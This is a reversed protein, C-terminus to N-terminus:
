HVVIPIRPDLLYGREGSLLLGRLGLKRLTTLAVHVRNVAAEHGVQEGPWGAALLEDLALGDGPAGVRREALALMLRRLPQRRVLDIDRDANPLRFAAADRRIVLATTATLGTSAELLRLAFRPDDGDAGARLARAEAAVDRSPDALQLRHIGLTALLAPESQCATADRTARDFAAEASIRDGARAYGAGRASAILVEYRAAGVEAAAAAAQALVAEGQALEGRELSATGLYYLASGERHRNGLDRFTQVAAAHLGVAEDLKGQEQLLIGLACTIAAEVQRAGQSRALALGDDLRARAEDLAGRMLAVAALEYSAAAIGEQQGAGRFLEIAQALERAAADLAGERRHAHGLHARAEAELIRAAPSRPSAVIRELAIEYHTRAAGTAGTIEVLEGLRVHASGELLPAGATIALEKCRELDARALDFAGLERQAAGRALLGRALEEPASADITALAGDLLRLRLRFMGRVALLPELALAITLALPTIAAHALATAHAVVLNELEAALRPLGHPAVLQTGHAAFYRAHRLALDVRDARMAFLEAAVERIPEYLQFRPEGGLEPHTTTRVLSRECLTELEALVSGRPGALVVEAAALSFGGRFVTCAAFCARAADDLSQVSDLVANRMSGHRGPDGPRTLLELPQAFRELIQPPSLVRIRAACLEIALPFGDVRRVIETIAAVDHEGLPLDPRVQRARRVFLEVAETALADERSVGQAPLALGTVPWLQEGPVGLPVRSTVLFRARPAVVMWEGVTAAAADVLHEFTELVILIRKRRALAAGLDAVIRPERLNKGLTVGLTAGVTACVAMASRADVLDCQWAGGGGHASYARAQEAAFRTALRSKGIGGPGVLTVLRAGEDFWRAIAAREHTRGVMTSPPDLVNTRADAVAM